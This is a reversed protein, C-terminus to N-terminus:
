KKKESKIKKEDVVLSKVWAEIAKIEAEKLPPADIPMRSEIIGQDGRIKM